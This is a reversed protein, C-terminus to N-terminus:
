IYETIKLNFETNNYNLIYNEQQNNEKFGIEALYRKNEPSDINEDVWIILLRKKINLSTM